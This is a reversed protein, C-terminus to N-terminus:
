ESESDGEVWEEDDSSAPESHASRGNADSVINDVSELVDELTDESHILPLLLPTLYTSNFQPVGERDQERERDLTTAV